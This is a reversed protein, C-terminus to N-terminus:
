LINSVKPVRTNRFWCLVMKRHTKRRVHCWVPWLPWYKTWLPQTPLCPRKPALLQFKSPRQSLNQYKRMPFVGISNEKPRSHVFHQIKFGLELETKFQAHLNSQDICKYHLVTPRLVPLKHSLHINTVNTPSRKSKILYWLLKGQVDLVGTDVQTSALFCWTWLGCGSACANEFSTHPTSTCTRVSWRAQACALYIFVLPQWKLEGSGSWVWQCCWSPVLHILVNISTLTWRLTFM